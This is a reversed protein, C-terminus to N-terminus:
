VIGKIRKIWWSLSLLCFCGWYYILNPVVASYLVEQDTKPEAPTPAPVPGEAVAPTPPTPDPLAVNQYNARREHASMQPSPSPEPSAAAAVAASAVALSDSSMPLTDVHDGAYGPPPLSLNYIDNYVDIKQSVHM